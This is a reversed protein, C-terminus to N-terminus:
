QVILDFSSCIIKSAISARLKGRVAEIETRSTAGVQLQRTWETVQNPHLEYYHAIETLTKDGRLAEVAVKAKSSGAHNRGIRNAMSKFRNHGGCWLCRGGRLELPSPRLILSVFCLALFPFPGGFHAM